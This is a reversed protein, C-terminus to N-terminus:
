FKFFVIYDHCNRISTSTYGTYVKEEENLKDRIFDIVSDRGVGNVSLINM